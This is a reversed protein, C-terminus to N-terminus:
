IIKRKIDKLGDFHYMMSSYNLPTYPLFPDSSSGLSTINKQLLAKFEEDMLHSYNEALEFLLVRAQKGDGIWWLSM